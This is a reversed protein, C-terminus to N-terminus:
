YLSWGNFSWFNLFSIPLTNSCNMSFSCHVKFVQFCCLHKNYLCLVSILHTEYNVSCQFPYTSVSMRLNNTLALLLVSWLKTDINSGSNWNRCGIRSQMHMFICVSSYDAVHSKITALVLIILYGHIFSNTLYIMSNTTVLFFLAICTQLYCCPVIEM